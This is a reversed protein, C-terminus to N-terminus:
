TFRQKHQVSNYRQQLVTQLITISETRV